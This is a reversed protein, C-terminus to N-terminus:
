VFDHIKKPIEEKPARHNPCGFSHLSNRDLRALPEVPFSGRLVRYLVRTRPGFDNFYDNNHHNFLCGLVRNAKSVESNAGIKLNVGRLFIYNTRGTITFVLTAYKLSVQVTKKKNLFATWFILLALWNLVYPGGLSCKVSFRAGDFLDLIRKAM